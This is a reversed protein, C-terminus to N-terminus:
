KYFQNQRGMIFAFGGIADCIKLLGKLSNSKGFLSYPIVILLGYSLRMLLRVFIKFKSFHEDNLIEVYYASNSNRYCRKVIYKLSTRNAPIIENAIATPTYRIIAGLKSLQSTLFIDEGGTFNLSAEFPGEIKDLFEKRLLLNNTFAEPVITGYELLKHTHFEKIYSAVERNFIPPNPGWVGDANFERQCKVLEVMWDQAVVQDDDVFCCFDSGTAEQVARNRAFAIGARTELFYNIKFPCISSIETVAKQSYEIADNEVVIIRITTDSPIQIVSLSSLLQLLGKQRNRTCICISIVIM